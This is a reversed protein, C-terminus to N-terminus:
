VRRVEGAGFLGTPRVVLIVVMVLYPMVRDLDDGLWPAWDPQYGATWLQTFGMVLGGAVAGHPSGLGGLIMAPLAALATLEITQNVQGPGAGLMTGALAAVGGALAWATGVVLRPSIGQAAAAEADEAAARLALGLRTWRFFAFVAALAVTGLGITWLDRHLVVAGLVEVSDIGWPDDMDVAPFGWIRGILQNLVILVGVTAMLVAFSPAGGLFRVVAREIGWGVLAGLAVAVIVALAFPLGWTVHANYTLYAGLAVLGAHALNIVRTARYVVAFGLAVLAYRAGLAWGAASLQLFEAM